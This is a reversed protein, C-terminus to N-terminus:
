AGSAAYRTPFPSPGPQPVPDPPLPGPAPTPGPMPIPETGRNGSHVSLYQRSYRHSAM